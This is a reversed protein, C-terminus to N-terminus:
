KNKKKKVRITFENSGETPQLDIFDQTHVCESQKPTYNKKEKREKKKKKKQMRKQFKWGEEHHIIVNGGGLVPKRM